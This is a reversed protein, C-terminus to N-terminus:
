AALGVSERWLRDMVRDLESEVYHPSRFPPQFYSFYRPGMEILEEEAWPLPFGNFHRDHLQCLKVFAVKDFNLASVGTYEHRVSSSRGAQFWRRLRSLM